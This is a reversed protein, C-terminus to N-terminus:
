RIKRDNSYQQPTVKVGTGIKFAEDQFPPGVCIHDGAKMLLNVKLYITFDTQFDRPLNGYQKISVEMCVTKFHKAIARLLKWDTFEKCFWVRTIEGRRTMAPILADAQREFEDVTTSLSRIFLTEVGIDSSGEVEKGIWISWKSCEPTM